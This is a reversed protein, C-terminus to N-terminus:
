RAQTLLNFTVIINRTRQIDSYLIQFPLAPYYVKKISVHHRSLVFSFHFSPIKRKDSDANFYRLCKFTSEGKGHFLTPKKEKKKKTDCFNFFFYLSFRVNPSHIVCFVFRLRAYFFKNVFRKM